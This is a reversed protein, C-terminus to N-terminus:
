AEDGPEPDSEDDAPFTDHPRASERNLHPAPGDAGEHLVPCSKWLGELRFLARTDALFLHVVIDNLDVLIWQGNQYGEMRLYEYNRERCLELLGDALSRAHRASSATAILVADACASKGRVDLALVHSAKHVDLFPLIVGLRDELSATSFRRAAPQLAASTIATTHEM